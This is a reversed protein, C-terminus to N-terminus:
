ATASRHRALEVPDHACFIDLDAHAAALERLVAASAEHARADVRVAREFWRLGLPVAPTQTITSRHFYADGAHLLYAGGVGVLVASHGRSHGHLPLLALDASVGELQRIAPVGRWTDGEAEQYTRWSPGHAWQAVRYRQRDRASAQATAAALERQHLHVTAHPFDALGGAHDLDLHTLVIHRVDSARHGLAALQALVTDARELKPATLMRFLRPLRNPDTVDATGFGTDVLILGDRATELVLCHAVLEARGGQGLLRAPVRPCM